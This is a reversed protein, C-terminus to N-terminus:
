FFRIIIALPENLKGPPMPPFTPFSPDFGLNPVVWNNLTQGGLMQILFVIANILIITRIAVPMRMFGRKMASGFSDYSRNGGMGGPFNFSGNAM